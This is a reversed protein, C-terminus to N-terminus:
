SGSRDSSSRRLHAGSRQRRGSALPLDRDFHQHGATLTAGIRTADGAGRLGDILLCARQADFDVDGLPWCFRTGPIYTFTRKPRCGFPNTCTGAAARMNRALPGCTARTSWLLWMLKRLTVIQRRSSPLATSSPSRRGARAVLEGEIDTALDTVALQHLHIARFLVGLRRPTLLLGRRRLDRRPLRDGAAAVGRRLPSRLFADM